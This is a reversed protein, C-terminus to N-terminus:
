GSRTGQDRGFFQKGVKEANYQGGSGSHNWIRQNSGGTIANIAGAGSHEFRPQVEESVNSLQEIAERIDKLAETDQFIQYQVLLEMNSAVAILYENVERKKMTLNTAKRWREASSAGKTPISKDFIDNLNAASKKCRELVPMVSQLTQESVNDAKINQEALSLARHMLPIQEAAAHFKKPLGVTGSAAQYIEHAAGYIQIISAILSLVGSAEAVGSM